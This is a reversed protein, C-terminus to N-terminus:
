KVFYLPSQKVNLFLDLGEKIYFFTWAGLLKPM